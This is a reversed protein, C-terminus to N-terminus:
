ALDPEKRILNLLRLYESPTLFEEGKLIEAIKTMLNKEKVYENNALPCCLPMTCVTELASEFDDILKIAATPNHLQNAIYDLIGDIDQIAKPYIHLAYKDAM